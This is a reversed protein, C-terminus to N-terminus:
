KVIGWNQALCQVATRGCAYYTRVIALTTPALTENSAYKALAKEVESIPVSWIAATSDVAINHWERQGNESFGFPQLRARESRVGTLMFDLWNLLRKFM